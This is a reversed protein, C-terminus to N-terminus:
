PNKLLIFRKQEGSASTNTDRIMLFDLYALLKGFSNLLEQYDNQLTEHKSITQLKKLEHYNATLNEQESHIDPKYKM